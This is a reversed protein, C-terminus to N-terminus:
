RYLDIINASVWYIDNNRTFFFYKGDKTVFPCLEHGVTNILSGMDKAKGWSGDKQKFSIYLDGRRSADGRISCFILYSEDYAVFVDAEYRRTNVGAGLRVAPQFKDKKLHSVYIDYNYSRKAAHNSSFYMNGKQTFSIYYENKDTNINRGANIPKSWGQTTRQIYWIDADKKAGKGNLPRNSIFYLRQEDPSLFPDHYTYQPHKLLIKPKSWQGNVLKCYRIEPKQDIDVGYFFETGDASFVSGFEVEAQTSILGPAFKKPKSLPPTQGLYKKSQAFSGFAYCMSLILLTRHIM